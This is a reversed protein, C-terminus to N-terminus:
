QFFIISFFNRTEFMSLSEIVHWKKTILKIIREFRYIQSSHSPNRVAQTYVNIRGIELTFGTTFFCVFM